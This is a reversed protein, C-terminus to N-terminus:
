LKSRNRDPYVMSRTTLHLYEGTASQLVVRATPAACGIVAVEIARASAVLARLLRLRREQERDQGRAGKEEVREHEGRV